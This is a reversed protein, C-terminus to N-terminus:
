ESAKPIFDDSFPGDFGVINGACFIRSGPTEGAQIRDRVAMLFRRPGWTDFVTTLGNALAVQAAETILEEYCGMYFALSEIRIDQLLHVNANMLGPIIYKGGASIREAQQPIATDRNGVAVIRKGEILIVGDELPAGGNGDIIKAGVIALRHLKNM